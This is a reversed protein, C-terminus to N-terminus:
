ESTIQGKGNCATCIVKEKKPWYDPYCWPPNMGERLHRIEERLSKLDNEERNKMERLDSKFWETFEEGPPFTEKDKFIDELMKKYSVYREETFRILHKLREEESLALYEEETLKDWEERTM